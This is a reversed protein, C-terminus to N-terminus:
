ETWIDEEIFEDSTPYVVLKPLPQGTIAAKMKVSVRWISGHELHKVRILLGERHMKTTQGARLGVERATFDRDTPLSIDPHNALWHKPSYM